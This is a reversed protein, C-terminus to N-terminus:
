SGYGAPHLILKQEGYVERLAKVLTERKEEDINNTPMQPLVKVFVKGKTLFPADIEYEEFIDKNFKLKIKVDQRNFLKVTVEDEALIRDITVKVLTHLNVGRRAIGDESPPSDIVIFHSGSHLDDGNWYIVNGKGKVRIVSNTSLNPPIKVKVKESKVFYGQGKCRKCDEYIYGEGSCNNCQVLFQQHQSINMEMAGKGDCVTCKKKEGGDNGSSKCTECAIARKIETITECGFISDALSIRLGSRTDANIKKPRRKFSGRMSNFSSAWVNNPNARNSTSGFKDYQLKKNPDKLIEYASSVEKFKEELEKDGNTKDPHLTKCLEKYAKKIEDKTASKEIGLIKYPNM